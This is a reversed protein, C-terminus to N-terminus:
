LKLNYQFFINTAKGNPSVLGTIYKSGITLTSSQLFSISGGIGASLGYYGGIAANVWILNDNKVHYIGSALLEPYLKLGWQYSASIGASIKNKAVSHYSLAISGPLLIWKDETKANPVLSDKLSEFIDSGQSDSGFDWFFGDYTYTGSTDSTSLGNWHMVSLDRVAVNFNGMETKMQYGGSLGFGVGSQFPNDGNKSQSSSFGDTTVTINEAYSTGNQTEYQTSMAMDGLDYNIYDMGDYLGLSLFAGSQKHVLGFAIKQYQIYNQSSNNLYVVDEGFMSNGYMALNYLDASFQISALNVYEYGFSFGFKSSDPFITLYASTNLLGAYHNSPGLYKNAKSKLGDDIYGGFLATQMFERSLADSYDSREGQIQIFFKTSDNYPIRGDALWNIQASLQLSVVFFAIVALFQRM